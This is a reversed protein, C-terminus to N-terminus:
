KKKRTTKGKVPKKKSSVKKKSKKAPKKRSKRKTSKKKKSLSKKLLKKKKVIKKKRTKRKKPKEEIDKAEVEIEKGKEIEEEFESVTRMLRQKKRSNDEQILVKDCEPCKFDREVANEFDFRLDCDSCTFYQNEEEKKLLGKLLGLRKQKHELAAELARKTHFGWYYIYWGKKKDKKRIFDVLSFSYLRYLMNRVQNVTLNLEEALVFESVPEKNKLLKVLDLVDRGANEMLFDEILKTLLDM